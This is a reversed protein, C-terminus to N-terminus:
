QSSSGDTGRTENEGQALFLFAEQKTNEEQERRMNNRDDQEFLSCSMMDVLSSLSDWSLIWATITSPLKANPLYLRRSLYTRRTIPNPVTEKM